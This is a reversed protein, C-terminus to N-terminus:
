SFLRDVRAILETEAAPLETFPTSWLVANPGGFPKAEPFIAGLDKAKTASIIASVNKGTRVHVIAILEATPVNVILEDIVRPLDDETANSKEFDQEGLMTYIFRGGSRQQVRALARGWLKLTSISKSQYLNDIIEERRAGSAILHSAVALSRPTVSPTQFSKTKSIIGTLLTTAVQEDLVNFGLAKVLEFIIESTSTATLDVLNVAGYHTNNAHHDINIVPTKYFFEANKETLEGLNELDASDVAVICDYAYAGASTTVDRSEFFGDKPTIYINLKKDEIAYSLEEVSVKSVDLNIVFQRINSLEKEISDSKPLFGHGSPLEFRSCVVKARKGLKELSLFLGLGGSIADSSPSVPLCIIVNKSRNLLEVAQQLPSFDM